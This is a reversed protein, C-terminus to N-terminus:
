TVPRTARRLSGSGAPRAGRPPSGDRYRSGMLRQRGVELAAILCSACLATSAGAAALQALVGHVVEDDIPLSMGADHDRMQRWPVMRIAVPAPGPARRPASRTFSVRHPPRPRM